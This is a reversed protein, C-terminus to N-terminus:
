CDRRERPPLRMCITSWDHYQACRWRSAATSRSTTVNTPLSSGYDMHSPTPPVTKRSAHNEAGLSVHKPSIASSRILTSPAYAQTQAMFLRCGPQQLVCHVCHSPPYSTGTGVPRKDYFRLKMPTRRAKLRNSRMWNAIRSVCGSAKPSFAEAASQRKHDATCRFTTSYLNQSM